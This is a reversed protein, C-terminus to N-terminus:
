RSWPRNQELCLALEEYVGRIADRLSTGPRGSRRKVERRIRESLSGKRLRHAVLPLYQAEDPPVKGASEELLRLLVDRATLRRRRRRLWPKFHGATVEAEGGARVTRDFDAALMAHSPLAMRGEALWRVTTQLAARVFSAIAIDM